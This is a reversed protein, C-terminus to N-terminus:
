DIRSSFLSRITWYFFRLLRLKRRDRQKAVSCFTVKQARVCVVVVVGFAVVVLDLFLFVGVPRRKGHM